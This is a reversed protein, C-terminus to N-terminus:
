SIKEQNSVLVEGTPSFTTKSNPDLIARIKALGPDSNFDETYAISGIMGMRHELNAIYTRWRSKPKRKLM